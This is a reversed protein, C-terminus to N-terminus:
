HGVNNHAEGILASHCDIDMVVLHPLKWKSEFKGSITEMMSSFTRQESFLPKENWLTKSALPM